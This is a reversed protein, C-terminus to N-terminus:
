NEESSFNPPLQCPIIFFLLSFNKLLRVWFSEERLAESNYVFIFL